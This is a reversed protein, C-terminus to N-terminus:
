HKEKTVDPGSFDLTNSSRNQSAESIGANPPPPKAPRGSPNDCVVKWGYELIYWGAEQVARHQPMGLDRMAARV